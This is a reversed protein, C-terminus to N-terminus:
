PLGGALFQRLRDLSSPYGTDAQAGAQETKAQAMLASAQMRNLTHQRQATLAQVQQPTTATALARNAADLQQRLQDAEDRLSGLEQKASENNRLATIAQIVEREDVRATLDVHMVVEGDELRTSTQQDLVSVIGATYTRIEDRTLDLNKVQTVSELYTAVQELAQRKADEIAIRAADIRTDHEGMPHEGTATIVRFIPLLPAQDPSPAASPARLRLANGLDLRVAQDRYKEPIWDWETTFRRTGSDDTYRYIQSGACAPAALSLLCFIVVQSSSVM